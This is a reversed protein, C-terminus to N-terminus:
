HSPKGVLWDERTWTEGTFSWFTEEVEDPIVPDMVSVNLDIKFLSM